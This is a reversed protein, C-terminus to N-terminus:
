KHDAELESAKLKEIIENLRAIEDDKHILAVYLKDRVKVLHIIGDELGNLYPAINEVDEPFDYQKRVMARLQEHTPQESM